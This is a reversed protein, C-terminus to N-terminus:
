FLDARQIRWANSGFASKKVMAAKLLDAASGQCKSNVAKRDAAAVKGVNPIWRRRGFLTEM